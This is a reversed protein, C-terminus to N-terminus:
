SVKDFLETDISGFTSYILRPRNIKRIPRAPIGGVLWYPEVNKTVVSGAAVVAHEGIICGPLITARAGIWSFKKLIVPAHDYSMDDPHHGATIITVDRSITCYDEILTIHGIICNNRILVYNGISLLGDVEINRDIIVPSGISHGLIRLLSNRIKTENFKSEFVLSLNSLWLIGSKITKKALSGLNVIM